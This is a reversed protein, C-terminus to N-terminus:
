KSAYRKLTTLTQIDPSTNGERIVQANTVQDLTLGLHTHTYPLRLDGTTSLRIFM